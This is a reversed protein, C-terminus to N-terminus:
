FCRRISANNLRTIPYKLTTGTTVTLGAHHTQRTGLTVGTKGTEWTEGAWPAVLTLVAGNTVLTSLSLATNDTGSTTSSLGAGSTFLSRGAVGYTLCFVQNSNM